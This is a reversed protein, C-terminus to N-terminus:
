DLEPNIYTREGNLYNRIQTEAVFLGNDICNQCSYQGEGSSLILPGETTDCEYCSKHRFFIDFDDDIYLESVMKDDNWDSENMETLIEDWIEKDESNTSHGEDIFEEKYDIIEILTDKMHRKMKNKMKELEKELAMIRLEKDGLEESLIEVMNMETMQDMSEPEIKGGTLEVM